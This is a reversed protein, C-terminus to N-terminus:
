VISQLSSNDLSGMRLDMVDRGNVAEGGHKAKLSTDALIVSSNSHSNSPCDPLFRLIIM